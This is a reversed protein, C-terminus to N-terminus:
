EIHPEQQSKMLSWVLTIRKKSVEILVEDSLEKSLDKSIMKDVQEILLDLSKNTVARGVTNRSHGAAEILNSNQPPAPDHRYSYVQFTGDGQKTTTANNWISAM